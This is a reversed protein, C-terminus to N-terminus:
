AVVTESESKVTTQVDEMMIMEIKTEEIFRRATEASTDHEEQGPIYKAFKVLDCLNLFGQLLQYIDKNLQQNRIESLIEFSTEELAPIFFRGEIYYRIIESIEIYYQKIEGCAPLNKAILTDLDTLAVEHAPRRPEPTKFIYGSEKKKQYFRYAFFAAVLIAIIIIAMSIAFIYDFPIYVPPKVDKLEKDGDQIVSEVYINISNAEIIKYDKTSDTPFYAVPFPPITFKGTDFVSIEYEYKIYVRGDESYPPQIKYNKIEFQGLNVGAGPQEVRMGEKHDISVTYNIRDGITISSTDVASQVEILPKEDQGLGIQILFLLIIIFKM